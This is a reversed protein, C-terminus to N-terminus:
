NRHGGASGLQARLIANMSPFSGPAVRAEPWWLCARLLAKPCHLHAERM